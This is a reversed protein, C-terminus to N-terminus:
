GPARRDGATSGPSTVSAGSEDDNAESPRLEERDEAERAEADEETRDGSPGDPPQRTVTGAPGAWAPAERPRREAPA